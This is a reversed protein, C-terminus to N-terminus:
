IKDSYELILDVEGLALNLAKAIETNKWGQRSLKLVNEQVSISPGGSEKREPKESKFLDAMLKLQAESDKSIEKLRTETSALWSRAKKLDDIKSNLEDITSDITEMKECVDEAKDKNELLVDVTLKLKEIEPPLSNIDEKFTKIDTELVKLNEFASDISELTQDLVAGKKELRDYRTNVDGISEEIRRIQVQYQQLDDNVDTLEIIKKDMSDSLASLKVFESELFEINKRENMFRAIKKNAEDELHTVKDYQLALSDIANKYIELRTVENKIREIDNELNAKLEDAREFIKTQNIFDNQKKDIEELVGNLRDAEAQVKERIKEQTDGIDTRVSLLMESIKQISHEAKSDAAKIKKDLDEEVRDIEINFQLLAKEAQVKIEEDAETIKSDISSIRDHLNKFAEDTDTIFDKYQANYKANLNKIASETLGAFSNIKDDFLSRADTFQQDTRNKWNEFDKKITEIRTNADERILSIKDELEKSGKELNENQIDITDKLQTKYLNFETEINQTTKEQLSNVYERFKESHQQISDNTGTIRNNLSTEIERVKEDLKSFHAKYEEATRSIRTKLEQKYQLEIDKRASENESALLTMNASIDEKWQKFNLNITETRKAIDEFFEDEFVKLQESVNTYSKSKLEELGEDLDKMRRKIQESKDNFDTLFDQQEQKVSSAYESMNKILEEKVLNQSKEIENKLSDINAISQEFKTFRAETQAKFDNIKKDTFRAFNNINEQFSSAISNFQSRMTSETQNLDASLSDSRMSISNETEGLKDMIYDIKQTINNETESFDSQIEAIYDKAQTQWETKFDEALKRTEALNKNIEEAIQASMKEFEKRNSQIKEDTQKKLDAFTTNQLAETENLKDMIYSIQQTINNKTGAFDSQIGAIYDKAQTQWETKFDEALKRTEALNKNIEEAIQASMKEFEKRYTQVREATQEKLKAFTIEQSSEAESLKDTIYNIKQSINDEAESFNSDMEALYDKAQTQWETKFDEALKRTEALNKNMEEAIQASMDEFEKRYTQVKEATQEKLKSFAANQLSEAKEAASTYAQQYLDQLRISAVDLFDSTNKQAAELRNEIDEIVAGMEKLIDAKFVELKNNAEKSFRSQMEPISSAIRNLESKANQISRALSDIFDSEKTIASLNKEALATMDMLKQVTQDSKIIYRDIEKIAESRSELTGSKSMFENYIDDLKKVAAIARTQQVELETSVESLNSQKENIFSELDEKIKEGYRRAKEISRNNKDNQRFSIIIGVCIVLTIINFIINIM